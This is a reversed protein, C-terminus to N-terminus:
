GVTESKKVVFTTSDDQTKLPIGKLSNREPSNELLKRYEELVREQDIIKKVEHEELGSNKLADVAEKYTVLGVTSKESENEFEKDSEVEGWMEGHSGKTLTPSGGEQDIAGMIEYNGTGRLAGAMRAKCLVFGGGKINSLFKPTPEADQESVVVVDFGRRFEKESEPDPFEDRIRYNGKFANLGLNALRRAEAGGEEMFTVESDKFVEMATVDTRSNVMLIKLEPINEKGLLFRSKFATLTKKSITRIEVSTDREFHGGEDADDKRHKMPELGSSKKPSM